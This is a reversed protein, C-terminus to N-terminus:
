INLVIVLMLAWVTSKRRSGFVQICSSLMSARYRMHNAYAMQICAVVVFNGMLSHVRTPALVPSVRLMADLSTKMQDLLTGFAM